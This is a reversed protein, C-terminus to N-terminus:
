ELGDYNIDLLQQFLEPDLMNNLRVGTGIHLQRAQTKYAIEAANLPNIGSGPLLEAGNIVQCDKMAALVDIGQYATNKGGSSLVNTISDGYGQIERFAKLPDGSVDIARHFTFGLRGNIRKIVRILDGHNINGGEDLSGFVIANAKTNEALYDIEADIKHFDAMSYVFGNAHPRVMVNVPISVSNCVEKALELSPSLGGDTFAHILEIRNAGYKEALIAEEVSTAIIEIIM